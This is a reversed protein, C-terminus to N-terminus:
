IIGIRGWENYKNNIKTRYYINCIRLVGALTISLIVIDNYEWYLSYNEHCIFFKHFTNGNLIFTQHSVNIEQQGLNKNVPNVPYIPGTLFFFCNKLLYRAM